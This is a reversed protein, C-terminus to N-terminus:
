ATSKKTSKDDTDESAAEKIEETITKSAKNLSNIAKGISRAIEPIRKPGFIILAILLIVFLEQPGLGFM